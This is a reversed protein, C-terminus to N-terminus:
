SQFKNKRSYIRSISQNKRVYEILEQNFRKKENYLFDIEIPIYFLPLDHLLENNESDRFRIADKETTIIIKNNASISNFKEIIFQINKPKFYYHDPFIIETIESAFNKIHEKLPKPNAIGTVLLVHYKSKKFSYKIASFRGPFVVVPSKYKIYTFFLSQYPFLELKKQVIRREIPKIEKPTNTVIIIHAKSKHHIGERLNGYPLLHDEYIPNNFDILLIYVGAKVALHQFGDDMIIVDIKPKTRKMLFEIGKQRNESVVVNIDPFKQKIQIPEDGVEIVKSDYFVEKFGRTKRKYGRSLVAVNYKEKLMKVIAEVHSTKGTGGVTINGVCIIPLPYEKTRFIGVSYLVHRAWVGFGYLWSLPILVISYKKRDIM